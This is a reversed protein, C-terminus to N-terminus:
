SNFRYCTLDFHMHTINNPKNKVLFEAIVLKKIGASSNRKLKFKTQGAGPCILDKHHFSSGKCTACACDFALYILPYKKLRIKAHNTSKSGRTNHM